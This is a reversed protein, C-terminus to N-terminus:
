SLLGRDSSNKRSGISSVVGRKLIKTHPHVLSGKHKYKAKMNHPLNVAGPTGLHDIISLM